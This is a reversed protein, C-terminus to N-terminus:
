EVFLGRKRERSPWSVKATTSSAEASGVILSRSYLARSGDIVDGVRCIPTPPL